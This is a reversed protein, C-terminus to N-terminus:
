PEDPEGTDAADGRRAEVLEAYVNGVLVVAEIKVPMRTEADVWLKVGRYKSGGPAETQGDEGTQELERVTVEYVITAFSGARVAVQESGVPNLVVELADDGNVIRLNRVQPPGPQSRMVLFAAPMDVGVRTRYRKEKTREEKEKVEHVGLVGAPWDFSATVTEKKEGSDKVVRSLRPRLTRPEFITRGEAHYPWIRRLAPLTDIEFSLALVRYGRFDEHATRMALTAAPMGNWGFEYRLEEPPDFPLVLDSPFSVPPPLPGPDANRGAVHWRVALWGALAALVALVLVAVRLVRRRKRV